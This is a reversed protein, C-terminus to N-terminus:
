SEQALAGEVVAEEDADEVGDEGVGGHLVGEEGAEVEVEASLLGEPKVEFDRM